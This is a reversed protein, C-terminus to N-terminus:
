SGDNEPLPGVLIPLYRGRLRIAEVLERFSNVALPEASPALM